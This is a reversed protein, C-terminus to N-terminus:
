RGQLERITKFEPINDLEGSAGALLAVNEWGIPMRQHKAAFQSFLRGYARDRQKGKAYSEEHEKCPVAYNFHHVVCGCEQTEERM